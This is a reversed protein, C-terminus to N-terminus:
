FLLGREKWEAIQGGSLNTAWLLSGEANCDIACQVASVLQPPVWTVLVGDHEFYAVWSDWPPIEHRDIFGGTEDYSFGHSLSIGPLVALLRGFPKTPRWPKQDLEQERKLRGSRLEIVRCVTEAVSFRCDDGRVLHRLPELGYGRLSDRLDLM